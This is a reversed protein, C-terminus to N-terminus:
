KRLHKILEGFIINSIVEKSNDIDVMFFTKDNSIIKYMRLINNYYENDVTVDFSDSMRSLFLELRDSSLLFTIQPKPFIKLFIRFWNGYLDFFFQYFFRDCIIIRKYGILILLLYSVVAYLYGVFSLLIKKGKQNRQVRTKRPSYKNLKIGLKAIIDALIYVPRVYKVKYGQYELRQVLVKAQTTKGSGDMGELAIIM